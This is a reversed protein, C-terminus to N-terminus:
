RGGSGRGNGRSSSGGDDSRNQGTRRGPQQRNQQVNIQTSEQYVSNNSGDIVVGQYADQVTAQSPSSVTTRRNNNALGRGLGPHSINVQSIVQTVQNNDGTITASQTGVQQTATEAFAPMALISIAAAGLCGLVGTRQKM